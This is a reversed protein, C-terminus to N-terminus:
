QGVGLLHRVFFDMRRRSAYPTEGAGHNAGPLILLEVDREARVFAAALQLTSAPDVNTDLEGVTLLLKGRLKAAHEVNSSRRYSEDVPWGLWQENWWLKDMRNDHCGCDSVAVRYFDPHDLLARTSSQGGASGGYIGVRGLDMWPRTAAAARLWAIHDPLGSDALNKWCVDHFKKGRFNTGMGDIQVVVFGLEAIAHQRLLRGFEKPVFAGQPGAYIEEVIPYRRAPDFTSPRILIGHIDTVGDRGKAVFREPVTWGAKLLVSADARELEIVRTGDSAHRLECVPPQDVRSWTDLFWRRDPSFEVRHDGDGETLVQFGSGDFGARCLHRHYPDQGSRVGGAMFWVERRTEDVHLVERVVWDGRTIRNKVSGTRRDILWLHTWGDRESMWILEETGELWHRWTKNTWDIFTPSTEEVVIRPISTEDLPGEKPNAVALLRYRQHGRENYAVFVERSNTAWHLDLEGDETYPNPYFTDDVRSGRRDAVRFLHLIPRPLPDGPKLYTQTHLRPQVQDTPAVELFSVKRDSGARIKRAIFTSSDPAWHVEPAYAEGPAGDTTLRELTTSDKPRLFLNSDRAVVVWRADPSEGPERIPLPAPVPEAPPNPAQRGLTVRGPHEPAEFTGVVTGAPDTLLWVHGGFTHQAREAGARVRGYAKRHGEPDVWFLDLDRGTPNHFTLVTEQGTRRTRTGVGGVSPAIDQVAEDPPRNTTTRTGGEADVVVWEYTDPGTQVRYTFRTNGPLWKPRVANRFVTNETRRSLSLAREYDGPTGQGLAGCIISLLAIGLGSRKLSVPTNLTAAIVATM